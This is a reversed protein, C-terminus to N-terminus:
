RYLHTKEQHTMPINLTCDVNLQSLGEKVLIESSLFWVNNLFVILISKFYFINTSPANTRFRPLFQMLSLQKEYESTMQHQFTQSLEMTDQMTHTTDAHITDRYLTDFDFMWKKDFNYFIDIPLTCVNVCKCM